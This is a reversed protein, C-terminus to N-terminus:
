SFYVFRVMGVALCIIYWAIVVLYMLGYSTGVKEPILQSQEDGLQYFGEKELRIGLAGAMASMPWGANPSETLGHDRRLIRWANRGRKRLFALLVFLLATIRAPIYNLADDLRASAKGLYEYQGHYGVMADLTNVVRYGLAGPIGFILFYFLPAVFSDSTNEAVSEITASILHPKDLSSTDRSVLSRLNFRAEDLKGAKLLMKIKMASKTLFRASFSIKLLLVGVILYAIPTLTQLYYMLYYTPLSFLAIDVVVIGVGYTFQGAPGARPALREELSILKGLWAVPHFRNPPEGWVFDLLLALALVAENIM